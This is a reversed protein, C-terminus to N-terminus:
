QELRAGTKADYKIWMTPAASGDEPHRFVLYLKGDFVRVSKLKSVESAISEHDLEPDAVHLEIQGFGDVKSYPHSKIKYTQEIESAIDAIVNVDQWDGPEIEAQEQCGVLSWGFVLILLAISRNM